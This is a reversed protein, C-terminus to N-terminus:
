YRSLLIKHVNVKQQYLFHLVSVFIGKVYKHV